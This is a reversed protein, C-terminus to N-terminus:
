GEQGWLSRHLKSAALFGCIPCSARLRVRAAGSWFAGQKEREAAVLGSAEDGGEKQAVGEELGAIFVLRLGSQLASHRVRLWQDADLGRVAGIDVAKASSGPLPLALLLELVNVGLVPLGGLDMKSSHLVGRVEPLVAARGTQAAETIAEVLTETREEQASLTNELWKQVRALMPGWEQEGFQVWCHAIAAMMLRALGAEVRESWRGGGGAETGDGGDVDEPDVARSRNMVAERAVAAMAERSHFQRRLLDLLATRQKEPPPARGAEAVAEKVGGSHLPFCSVALSLKELAAAGEPGEELAMPPPAKLAEDLWLSVAKNVAGESDGEPRQGQLLPMAIPLVATLLKRRGKEVALYSVFFARAENSGWAGGGVLAGLLRRLAGLASERSVDDDSVRETSVDDDSCAKVLGDLVRHLLAFERDTASRGCEVLFPTLADTAGGKERELTVLLEMALWARSGSGGGGEARGLLVENPGVLLLLAGAFAAFAPQVDGGSQGSTEGGMGEEPLMARSWKPWSGMPAVLGDLVEGSEAGGGALLEMIEAGRQAATVAAAPGGEAVQRRVAGVLARQIYKRQEGRISMMVEKTLARVLARAAASLREADGPKREGNALLGEMKRKAQADVTDEALNRGEEGEETDHVKDRVGGDPEQWSLSFLAVLIRARVDEAESPVKKSLAYAGGVEVAAIALKVGGGEMRERLKELVARLAGGSLFPPRGAGGLVHKLFEQCLPDRLENSGAVALAAADVGPSQLDLRRSAGQERLKGLIAALVRVDELHEAVRTENGGEQKAWRTLRGLVGEWEARLRADRLVALLLELRVSADAASRKGGGGGRCWPTLRTTVFFRVAEFEADGQAERSAVTAFSIPGYLTVLRALLKVLPVPDNAGVALEWTGAVLPKVGADLAKSSAPGLMSAGRRGQVPPRKALRSVVTYFDGVKKVAAGVKGEDALLALIRNTFDPWFESLAGENRELQTVSGAIAEALDVARSSAPAAIVDGNRDEEVGGGSTQGSPGARAHSSAREADEDVDGKQPATSGARGGGRAQVYENWAVDLLVTRVMEHQFALGGDKEVYKDAHMVVYVLCERWARLLARWEADTVCADRGGWLAGFLERWFGPGEGVVGPPLLSVLVLLCPYSAEASGYAAHKLLAWLGPLVAKRANVAGWGQPFRRAFSLLMDWMARHVGPEREALSGLVLPAVATLNEAVCAPASECLARLMQYAAGRVVLSPHRVCPSFFRHRVSVQGALEVAKTCRVASAELEGGEASADGARGGQGSVSGGKAVGGGQASMSGEKGHPAKNDESGGGEGGGLVQLLTAMALLSASLQREVWDAAEEPAVGKDATQPTVGLTEDLYEFMEGQCFALAEVQKKQAPFAAHFSARAAEAVERSPDFQSVWWPGMLVRLHPALSRRRTAAPFCTLVLNLLLPIRRSVHESIKIAQPDGKLPHLGCSGAVILTSPGIKISRTREHSDMSCVM